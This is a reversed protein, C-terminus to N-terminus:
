TPQVISHRWTLTEESLFYVFATSVITHIKSIVANTALGIGNLIAPNEASHAPKQAREVDIENDGNRPWFVGDIQVLFASGTGTTKQRLMKQVTITLKSTVNRREAGSMASPWSTPSFAPSLGSSCCRWLRHAWGEWRSSWMDTWLWYVPCTRIAAGNELLTSGFM